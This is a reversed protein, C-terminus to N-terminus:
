FDRNLVFGLRPRARRHREVEGDQPQHLLAEGGPLGEFVGAADARAVGADAVPGSPGSSGPSAHVVTAARM